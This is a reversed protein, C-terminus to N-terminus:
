PQRHVQLGPRQRHSQLQRIQGPHRNRQGTPLFVQLTFELCGPFMQVSIQDLCFIKKSKRTWFFCTPKKLYGWFTRVANQPYLKRQPNRYKEVYLRFLYLNRDTFANKEVTNKLFITKCPNGVMGKINLIRSPTQNM